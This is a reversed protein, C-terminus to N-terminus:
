QILALLMEIILLIRNRVKIGAASFLASFNYITSEVNFECHM